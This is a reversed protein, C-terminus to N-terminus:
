ESIPENDEEWGQVLASLDAKEIPAVNHRYHEMSEAYVPIMHELIDKGVGFQHARIDTVVLGYKKCEQFSWEKAGVTHMAMDVGNERYYDRYYSVQNSDQIAKLIIENYDPNHTAEEELKEIKGLLKWTWVFLLFAIVSLISVVLIM